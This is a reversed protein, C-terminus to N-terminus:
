SFSTLPLYILILSIFLRGCIVPAVFQRISMDDIDTGWSESARLSQEVGKSSHTFLYGSNM